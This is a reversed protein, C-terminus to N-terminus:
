DNSWVITVKIDGKPFGWDDVPIERMVPNFQDSFAENIDREIDSLSEGCYEKEFITKM